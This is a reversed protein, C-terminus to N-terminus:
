RLILVNGLEWQYEERNEDFKIQRVQKEATAGVSSLHKPPIKAPEATLVLRANQRRPSKNETFLSKNETPGGGHPAKLKDSQGPAICAFEAFESPSIGRNDGIVPSATM